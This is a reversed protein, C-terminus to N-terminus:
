FAILSKSYHLDSWSVRNSRVARVASLVFDVSKVMAAVM